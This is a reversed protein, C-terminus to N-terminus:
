RTSIPVAVHNVILSRNHMFSIACFVPFSFLSPRRWFKSISNYPQAKEQRGNLSCSPPTISCWIHVGTPSEIRLIAKTAVWGFNLVPISCQGDSVLWQENCMLDNNQCNTGINKSLKPLFSIFVSRFTCALMFNRDEQLIASHIACIQFWVWTLMMNVAQLAALASRGFTRAHM